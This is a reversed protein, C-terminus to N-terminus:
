AGDGVALVVSGSLSGGSRNLTAQVPRAQAQARVEQLWQQLAQPGIGTFNVSLRDGQITLRAKDALRETAAKVADVAQERPIPALERLERAEGALRQMQQLAAERTDIRAPAETIVRWAPRVGATWLVFAALVLVALGVARRERAGLAQWRQRWARGSSPNDDSM